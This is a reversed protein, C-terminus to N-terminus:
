GRVIECVRARRTSGVKATRRRVVMGEPLEAAAEDTALLIGPAAAKTLLQAMNMPMGFLDGARRLAPGYAFGARAPIPSIDAIHDLADLAALAVESAHRGALFVGDGVYKVPRVTRGVTALQGAEFLIDCLAATEETTATELYSTSGVLDVLAIGAPATATEALAEETLAGALADHLLAAHLLEFTTSSVPLGPALLEDLVDARREAPVASLFARVTETEADVIRTVARSYAQALAALADTPVGLRRAEGLADTLERELRAVDVSGAMLRLLAMVEEDRVADSRWLGFPDLMRRIGARQPRDAAPGLRSGLVDAIDPTPDV